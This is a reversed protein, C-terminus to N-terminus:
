FKLDNIESIVQMKYEDGQTYVFDKFGQVVNKHTSSIKIGSNVGEATIKIEDGSEFLQDYKELRAVAKEYREELVQLKKLLLLRLQAENEATEKNKPPKETNEVENEVEKAEEKEAEEKKKMEEAEMNYQLSWNQANTKAGELTCFFPCPEGQGLREEGSEWFYLGNFVDYKYARVQYIYARETKHYRNIIQIEEVQECSEVLEWLQEEDLCDFYDNAEDTREKITKETTKKTSNELDELEKSIEQSDAQHHVQSHAEQQEKELNVLETIYDKAEHQYITSHISEGRSNLVLWGQGELVKCYYFGKYKTAGALAEPSLANPNTQVTM